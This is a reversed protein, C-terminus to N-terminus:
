DSRTWARKSQLSWEAMEATLRDDREVALAAQYLPDDEGEDESDDESLAQELRQV